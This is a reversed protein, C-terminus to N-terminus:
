LPGSKAPTNSEIIEQPRDRGLGAIRSGSTRWAIGPCVYPALSCCCLTHAPPRLLKNTFLWWLPSWLIMSDCPQFAGVLDDLGVVRGNGDSGCVVLDYRTSGWGSVDQVSGPIAVGGGGQAAMGAGSRERIFTFSHLLLIPFSWLLKLLYLMFSQYPLELSGYVLDAISWRLESLFIFEAPATGFDSSFPIKRLIWKSKTHVVLIMTYVWLSWQVSVIPVM